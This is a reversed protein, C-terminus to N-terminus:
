RRAHFLEPHTGRGLVLKGVPVHLVQAVPEGATWTVLLGPVHGAGLEPVRQSEEKTEDGASM